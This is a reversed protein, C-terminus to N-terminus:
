RSSTPQLTFKHRSGPCIQSSPILGNPVLTWDRFNPNKSNDTCTVDAFDKPCETFRFGTPGLKLKPDLLTPPLPFELSVSNNKLKESPVEILSYLVVTADTPKTSLTLLYKQNASIKASAAPPVQVDIMVSKDKSPGCNNEIPRRTFVASAHVAKPDMADKLSSRPIDLTIEDNLYVTVYKYNKDPSSPFKTQLILTGNAITGGSALVVDPVNQSDDRSFVVAAHKLSKFDKVFPDLEKPVSFYLTAMEKTTSFPPAVPPKAYEQPPAIKLFYIAGALVGIGFLTLIAKMM